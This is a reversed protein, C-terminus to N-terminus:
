LTKEQVEIFRELAELCEIQQTSRPELHFVADRLLVLADERIARLLRVEELLVRSDDGNCVDCRSAPERGHVCRILDETDALAREELQKLDLATLMLDIM